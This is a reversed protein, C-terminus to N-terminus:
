AGEFPGFYKPRPNLLMEDTVMLRRVGANSLLRNMDALVENATKNVWNTRPMASAPAYLTPGGSMARFLKRTRTRKSHKM